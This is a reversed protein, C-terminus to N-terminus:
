ETVRHQFFRVLDHVGDVGVIDASQGFLKAVEKEQNRHLRLDRLFSTREADFINELADVALQNATMRM